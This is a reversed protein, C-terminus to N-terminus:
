YDKMWEYFHYHDGNMGLKEYVKRATMNNKDVYLRLGGINNANIVISKLHNYMRAFVGMGRYGPLVYVSQFWLVTSNRWDSWEPTMMMSAIVKPGSEAVWYEGKSKDIFVAKVGDGVVKPDLHINETELAMKIQFGIITEADNATALRIKIEM